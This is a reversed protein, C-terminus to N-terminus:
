QRHAELFVANGTYSETGFDFFSLPHKTRFTIYGYHAMRHPHKDPMNEWHERVEKQYLLRDNTQQRFIAFGSWAAYVILLVIIGLLFAIAKNTFAGTYVQKAFLILVSRRM